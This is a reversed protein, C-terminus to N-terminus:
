YEYRWAVIIFAVLGILLIVTNILYYIFGCTPFNQDSTCSVRVTPIYLVVLGLLQFIGKIAFYVGILLGKMSHPSQACIFEFLAIHYLMAGLANLLSPIILYNPSIKLYDNVANYNPEHIHDYKIVGMILTSLSSVFFLLMGLGIRKLMSSVYIQIFPRFLCLYMPIIVVVILPTLCGSTYLLPLSKIVSRFLTINYYDDPIVLVALMGNVAFDSTFLPASTLLVCIIGILAKVNEVQETTCPGGYKEKGLDLRSPLEDECYTFASRRIPAIHDKAFKLVKFM